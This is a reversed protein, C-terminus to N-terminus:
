KIKIYEIVPQEAKTITGNNDIPKADAVIKDVVEMGSTVHGFAAYNGNLSPYDQHMIFFQSSASNPDKSRAMSIVGRTHLITNNVGNASFEGKINKGSGGTGNGNPDGGQIMFGEIIRHFTLGNYFGQNVLRVFNDVTIPAQTRDLELEIIGYNRVSIEVNVNNMNDNGKTVKYIVLGGIVLIVVIPIAIYMWKDKM